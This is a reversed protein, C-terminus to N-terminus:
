HTFEFLCNFALKFSIITAEAYMSLRETMFVIAALLLFAGCIKFAVGVHDWTLVVPDSELPPPRVKSVDFWKATIRDLLGNERLRMNLKMYLPMLFENSQGREGVIWESIKIIRDNIITLPQNPHKDNYDAIEHLDAVLIKNGKDAPNRLVREIWDRANHSRIRLEYENDKRSNRHDCRKFNLFFRCLNV